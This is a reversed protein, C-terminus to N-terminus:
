WQQYPQGDIARLFGIVAGMCILNCCMAGLEPYWAAAWMYRDKKTAQSGRHWTESLLKDGFEHGAGTNPPLEETELDNRQWTELQLAGHQGGPVQGRKSM